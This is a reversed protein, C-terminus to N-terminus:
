TLEVGFYMTSTLRELIQNYLTYSTHIRNRKKIATLQHCKVIDFSMVWRREPFEM